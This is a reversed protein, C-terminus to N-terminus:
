AQAALGEEPNNAPTEEAKVSRLTGDGVSADEWRWIELVREARHRELYLMGDKVYRRARVTVDRKVEVEAEDEGQQAVQGMGNSDWEMWGEEAKDEQPKAAKRRLFSLGGPVRREMDWGKPQYNKTHVEEESKAGVDTVERKRKVVGNAAVANLRPKSRGEDGSGAGMAMRVRWRLERALAAPDKVKDLPVMERAERRNGEGSKEVLRVESVLFNALAEVSELVRTPFEEKAKLDKLYKEGV